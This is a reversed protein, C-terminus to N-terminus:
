QVIVGLHTPDFDRKYKKFEAVAAAFKDKGKLFSKVTPDSLIPQLAARNAAVFECLAVTKDDSEVCTYGLIGSRSAPNLQAPAYMPRRPNTTTGSGTWPLIALVREYRNRPDVRYQGAATGLSYLFVCTLCTGRQLPANM